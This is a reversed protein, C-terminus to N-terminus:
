YESEKRAGVYFYGCPPPVSNVPIGLFTQVLNGFTGKNEAGVSHTDMFDALCKGELRKAFYEIAPPNTINYGYDTM